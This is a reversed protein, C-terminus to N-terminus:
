HGVEGIWVGSAPLDIVLTNGEVQAKGDGTLLKVTAARDLLTGELPIQLKAPSAGRNIGVVVGKEAHPLTRTYALSDKESALVQMAGDRLAAEDARLKLLERVWKHMATQASDPHTFADEAV